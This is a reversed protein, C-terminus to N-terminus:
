LAIQLNHLLGLSVDDDLSTKLLLHYLVNSTMGIIPIYVTISVSHVTFLSCIYHTITLM